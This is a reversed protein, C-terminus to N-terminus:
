IILHRKACSQTLIIIDNRQQSSDLTSMYDRMKDVSSKNRLPFPEMAMQARAHFAQSNAHFVPASSAGFFARSSLSAAPAPPPPSFNEQVPTTPNSSKQTKLQNKLKELSSLTPLGLAELEADTMVNSDEEQKRKEEEEKKKAEKGYKKALMQNHQTIFDINQFFLKLSM